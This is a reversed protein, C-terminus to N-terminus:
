RPSFPSSRIIGAFLLHSKIRRRLTLISRWSTPKPTHVPDLHSLVPVPPTWKHICYYVNPNWLILPIEQSASFRNAEWPPSQEMSCNHTINRTQHLETLQSHKARIHVACILVDPIEGDLRIKTCELVNWPGEVSACWCDHAHANNHILLM